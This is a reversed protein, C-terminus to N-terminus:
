SKVAKIAEKATKNKDLKNIIFVFAGVLIFTIAYILISM